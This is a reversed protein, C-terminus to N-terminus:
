LKIILQSQIGTLTQWQIFYWGQALPTCDVKITETDAKINEKLLLRGTEDYITIVQIPNKINSNEIYLVDYVPNPYILNNRHNEIQAVGVPAVYCVEISPHYATDPHDSSAFDKANYHMENQLRLMFGYSNPYDIMDQVLNKVDTNLYNQNPNTTHPLVVQNLTTTTPQTNWTVTNENWPSTIRQILVTNNTGYM